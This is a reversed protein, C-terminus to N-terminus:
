VVSKRDASKDVTVTKKLGGKKFSEISGLLSGRDGSGGGSSKGKKSSSSSKSPPPAGSSPPPPPGGSPPPPPGGSPPPPPGGFSPPPPGGSLPPPPGGPTPPGKKLPAPIKPSMKPQPSGKPSPNFSPPPPNFSPPPPNHNPPPPNFNPPPPGGPTSPQTRSGTQFHNANLVNKNTADTLTVNTSESTQLKQYGAEAKVALAAIQEDSLVDLTQLVSSWHTVDSQLNAITGSFGIQSQVFSSSSILVDGFRKREILFVKKLIDSKFRDIDERKTNFEKMNQLLAADGGKKGSKKTKKELEKLEGQLDKRSKNMDKEFNDIDKSDIELKQELNQVIDNLLSNAVTDIGDAILKQGEALKNIEVGIDGYHLEGIRLLSDSWARSVQSLGQYASQLKSSLSIFDKLQKKIGKLKDVTLQCSKLKQDTKIDLNELNNM